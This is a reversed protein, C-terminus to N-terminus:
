IESLDKWHSGGQYTHFSPRLRYANSAIIRVRGIFSTVNAKNAKRVDAVKRSYDTLDGVIHFLIRSTARDNREQQESLTVTKM